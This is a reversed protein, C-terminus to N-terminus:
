RSNKGTDPSGASEASANSANSDLELDDFFYDVGVQLKRALLCLCAPSM